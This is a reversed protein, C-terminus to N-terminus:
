CGSLNVKTAMVVMSQRQHVMWQEYIDMKEHKLSFVEEVEAPMMVEGSEKDLISRV